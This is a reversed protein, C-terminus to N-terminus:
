GKSLKACVLLFFFAISLAAFFLKVSGVSVKHNFPHSSLYDEQQNRSRPKEEPKEPIPPLTEKKTEPNNQVQPITKTTNQLYKGVDSERIQKQLARFEDSKVFERFDKIEKVVDPFDGPESQIETTKEEKKEKEDEDHFEKWKPPWFRQNFPNPSMIDGAKAAAAPFHISLFMLCVALVLVSKKQICVIM